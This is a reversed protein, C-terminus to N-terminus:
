LGRTERESERERERGGERGGEGEREGERGREREGERGRAKEREALGVEGEPTFRDHRVLVRAPRRGKLYTDENRSFFEFKPETGGIERFQDSPGRTKVHLHSFV